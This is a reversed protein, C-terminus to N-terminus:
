DLTHDKLSLLSPEPILNLPTGILLHGPTLSNLDDLDTTIACLPRSNLCAEIQAFLTSMEEFTLKISTTMRRLHHKTLKVFSEWQGGMNPAYPPNLHFRIGDSAFLQAIENSVTSKADLFLRPLENKAGLFNTGRDCYFDTSMGRRAMMRRIALIFKQTSVDGVLELHAAKSAMCVFVCIYAKETPANRKNSSKIEIPGAFDLGCHLFARSPITKIAPM